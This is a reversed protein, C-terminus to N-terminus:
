PIDTNVLVVLELFGTFSSPLTLGGHSFFSPLVGGREAFVLTVLRFLTADFWGKIRVVLATVHARQPDVVIGLSTAVLRPFSDAVLTVRLGEIRFLDLTRRTCEVEALVHWTAPPPVKVVFGPSIVLDLLGVPYMM